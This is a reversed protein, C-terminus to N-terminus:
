DLQRLAALLDAESEDGPWKGYVAALGSKVDQIGHLARIDVRTPLPQPLKSFYADDASAEQMAGAEIRLLTGSPRFVAVADVVVQRALLGIISELEDEWVGRIRTEDNLLLDFARDSARLMDLKGSVRVRRPKPSQRYLSAAAEMTTEDITTTPLTEIGMGDLTGMGVRAVGQEKFRAGFKEIRKLLDTDYWESAANREAIVGITENLVDLATKDEGPFTDFLGKERYVEAAAEGLSPAEVIVIKSHDGAEQIDVPNLEAANRLWDPRRGKIRSAHRFRMCTAERAANAISAMVSGVGALSPRGNRTAPGTIRLLHSTTKM